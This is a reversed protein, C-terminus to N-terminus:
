ARWAAGSFLTGFYKRSRRSLVILAVAFPAIPRGTWVRGAHEVCGSSEAAQAQHAGLLLELKLVEGDRPLKCLQVVFMEVGHVVAFGFHGVALLGQADVSRRRSLQSALPSCALVFHPAFHVVGTRTDSVVFRIRLAVSEDAFFAAQRAIFPRGRDFEVKVVRVEVTYGSQPFRALAAETASAVSALYFGKTMHETAARKSQVSSVRPVMGELM